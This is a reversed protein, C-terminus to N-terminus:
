DDNAILSRHLNVPRYSSTEYALIELVLSTSNVSDERGRRNPDVTAPVISGLVALQDICDEFVAAVYQAELPPLVAVPQSRSSTVGSAM